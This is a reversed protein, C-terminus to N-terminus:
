RFESIIWDAGAKELRFVQRSSQTQRRGGVVLSDKRSLQVTATRGEIRIAEVELTVQQSEIQKFSDRLRKEEAASLGPRVSRFLPVDKKEVAMAYTALTRRIAAEDSEAAAPPTPAPLAARPVPASPPPAPVAANTLPVGSLLPAGVPAALQTPVAPTEAQTPSAGPVARTAVPAATSGAAAPGAGSSTQVDSATRRPPTAPAASAAEPAPPPLPRPAAVPESSAPPAATVAAAPSGLAPPGAQPSDAQASPAPPEADPRWVWALVLAALVVAAGAAIGQRWASAPAAQSAPALSAPALSAPALVTPGAPEPRAVSARSGPAAKALSARSAPAAPMLDPRTALVTASSHSSNVEIDRRLRKLDTLLDAAHQYRLDRDKELAKQIIEELRPPVAGNHEVISPAPRILIAAIVAGPSSGGFAQVGAAMEYIVTGLSFLDSRADVEEGRAQEPSMYSVTGLTSGPVTLQDDMSMTATANTPQVLKALGFDLIKVRNKEGIFINGPKIDRHVIGQSHAAELADALQIALDLVDSITIPARKIRDRLTEGKLAEMVIFPSGGDDGIDFVTCIGPHSLSSAARAELRFRELTTEDRSAEPPLFKLAVQRGLRGDEALYVVGMGGAGLTQLVRYHSIARGIM